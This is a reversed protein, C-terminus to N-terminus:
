FRDDFNSTMIHKNLHEQKSINMFKHIFTNTKM